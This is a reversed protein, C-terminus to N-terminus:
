ELWPARHYAIAEDITRAIPPESIAMHILRDLTREVIQMLADAYLPMDAAYTLAEHVIAHRRQSLLDLRFELARRDASESSARPGDNHSLDDLALSLASLDADTPYATSLAAITRTQMLPRLTERWLRMAPISDLMSATSNDALARQQFQQALRRAPAVAAFAQADMEVWSILLAPAATVLQGKVGRRGGVFVHELAVFFALFRDAPNPENRGANYWSLSRMILEDIPQRTNAKAARRVFAEYADWTSRVLPNGASVQQSPPRRRWGTELVVSHTHPEGTFANPGLMLRTGVTSGATLAHGLVSLAQELTVGALWAAASRSSAQVVRWARLHDPTPVRGRVLPAEGLDLVSPDYWALGDGSLWSQQAPLIGDVTLVVDYTSLIQFQTTLPVLTLDLQQRSWTDHDSIAWSDQHPAFEDVFMDFWEFWFAAASDGLANSGASVARSLSARFSDDLLSAQTELAERIVDHIERLSAWQRFLQSPDFIGLSGGQTAANRMALPLSGHLRSGLRECVVEQARSAFEVLAAAVVHRRFVRALARRAPDAISLSTARHSLGAATLLHSRLLQAASELESVYEAAPAPQTGPLYPLTFAIIADSLAREALALLARRGLATHLETANQENTLWAQNFTTQVLSQADRSLTVIESYAVPQRRLTDAALSPHASRIAIQACRSLTESVATAALPNDCLATVTPSLANRVSGTGLISAALEALTKADEHNLYDRLLLASLVHLRESSPPSSGTLADALARVINAANSLEGDLAVISLLLPAASVTGHPSCAKVVDAFVGPFYTRSYDAADDNSALLQRLYTVLGFARSPTQNKRPQEILFHPGKSQV